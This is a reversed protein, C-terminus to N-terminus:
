RSWNNVEIGGSGSGTLGLKALISSDYNLTPSNTINLSGNTYLGGINPSNSVNTQGSASVFVTQPANFNTSFSFPGTTVFLSAAGAIKFSGTTISGNAYIYALADSYGASNNISGTQRLEVNNKAQLYVNGGDMYCNNNFSITGQRSIVKLNGTTSAQIYNNNDTLNINNNTIITVNGTDSKIYSGGSLSLGGSGYITINGGSSRIFSGNSLNIDGNVYLVIDGSSTISGYGYSGQRSLHLQGNFYLTAESSTATINGGRTYSGNYYYATNTLTTTSTTLQATGSPQTGLTTLISPMDEIPPLNVTMNGLSSDIVYMSNTLWTHWGSPEKNLVHITSLLFNSGSSIEVSNGAFGMDGYIKPNEGGWIYVNGLSYVGYENFVNGNVYQNTGNNSNGVTIQVKVTKIVDNYRGTSTIIYVGAIPPSAPVLATNNKTITVHFQSSGSNDLNNWNDAGNDIWEWDQTTQYFEAIARKAGAEAAYQAALGDSGSVSTRLTMTAAPLLGALIIGFFLM